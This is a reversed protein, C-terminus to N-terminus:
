ELLVIIPLGWLVEHCAQHPRLQRPIYAMIPPIPARARSGSIPWNFVFLVILNNWLSEPLIAVARPHTAHRIPHYLRLPSLLVIVSPM